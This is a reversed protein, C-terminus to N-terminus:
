FSMYILDREKQMWDDTSDNNTHRVQVYLSQQWNKCVGTDWDMSEVNYVLSKDMVEVGIDGAYMADLLKKTCKNRDFRMTFRFDKDKENTLGNYSPSLRTVIHDEGYFM